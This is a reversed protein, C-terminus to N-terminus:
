RTPATTCQRTCSKSSATSTQEHRGLQRHQREGQLTAAIGICMPELRGALHVKNAPIVMRGAAVERRIAEPELQEREAVFDMERTIM